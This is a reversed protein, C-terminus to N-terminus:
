KAKELLLEFQTQLSTAPKGDLTAKMTTVAKGSAGIVVRNKWFIVADSGAWAPLFRASDAFGESQNLIGTALTQENKGDRDVVVLSPKDGARALVIRKDDPSFFACSVPGAALKAAEKKEISCSFLANLEADEPEALAEGPKGAVSATVLVDRGDASVDVSLDKGAVIEAIPTSKGDLTFQTLTGKLASEGVKAKVVVAVISKSDPMWDHIMVSDDLIDTVKGTDVAICKVAVLNGLDGKAQTAVEGVSIYKGDPSWLAWAMPSDGKYLEKAAGGAASAGLSGSLDMVFVTGPTNERVTVYFLKKGDASFRV